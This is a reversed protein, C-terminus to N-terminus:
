HLKGAMDMKIIQSATGFENEIYVKYDGVDGWCFQMIELVLEGSPALTCNFRGGYEIKEGRRYWHIIPEPFGRIHTVVKSKMSEVGYQTDDVKGIFEPVIGLFCVM